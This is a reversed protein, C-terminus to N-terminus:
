VRLLPVELGPKDALFTTVIENIRDVDAYELKGM